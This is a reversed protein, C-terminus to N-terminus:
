ENEGGEAARHDPEPRAPDAAGMARDVEIAVTRSDEDLHSYPEPKTPAIADFEDALAEEANAVSLGGIVDGTANAVALFQQVESSSAGLSEGVAAVVGAFKGGEIGEVFDKWVNGDLQRGEDAMLAAELLGAYRELTGQTVSVGKTVLALRVLAELPRQATIIDNFLM